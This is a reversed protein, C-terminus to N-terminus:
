LRRPEDRAGANQEVAAGVLSQDLLRAHSCGHGRDQQEDEEGARGRGIRGDPVVDQEDDGVVQVDREAAVAGVRGRPCRVEVAQRGLANAEVAGVCLMRDAVGRSRREQAAQPGLRGLDKVVEQRQPVRYAIGHHQGLVEPIVAVEGGPDALHRM